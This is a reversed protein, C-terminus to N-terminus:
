EVGKLAEVMNISKLRRHVIIMLVILIVVTIASSLVYVWISPNSEFMMSRSALDLIIKKYLLYGVYNGLAIGIISLYLVERFVYSTVERPYFGLVKITSLERIRESVNINILNYLVVLALSTSCCVIVLVILDIGEVVNKLIDEYKSTNQVNVIKENTLLDKEIDSIAANDGDAKILYTNYEYEKNFVKKYYDDTMYVNHGFYNRNIDAVKLEYREQNWVIEFTDGVQLNHLYALKENIVVGDDTLNISGSGTYLDLYGTLETDLSYINIQDLVTNDKEITARSLNIKKYDSSKDDIYEDLKDVESKSIYPNYSATLKYNNIKNFQINSIDQVGYKIGFGIFMLALSGMVGFITMAMRVKYRFINRFTVKRLFSLRSWIFPIYELLIRSAAKPAKPRLLYAARESLIKSIPLYVAVLVCAIVIALSLIITSPSVSILAKKFILFKAYSDYVLPVIIFYSAVLGLIGGSIASLSAYLYYKKAIAWSGFGLSKLTGINIRNEEVMRSITALTVLISVAFLFVSFINAISLLSDMSDIFQKYSANDKINDVKYKPYKYDDIQKKSIKLAEDQERIKAKNTDLEKKASEYRDLSINKLQEISKESDELQKKAASLKRNNEQWTKTSKEKFDKSEKDSEKDFATILEDRVKNVEQYYNPNSYDSKDINSLSINLGTFRDSKVNDETVYAFFN